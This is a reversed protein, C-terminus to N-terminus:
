DMRGFIMRGASTQLVSTVTLTVTEGIAGRGNEVVVMTGDELYGVGQGEEQGPKLVEVELTEGPLVAPKLANALDNINIVEIGRVRAVKNLNYDNTIVRGSRKEALTVLMQDVGEGTQTAVPMEDITIDVHPMTQLRNLIDLGRRGRNRKLRDASDAIAQLERLVFRPVLLPSDLFRTDAIDAIRGDIITSTDLLLPRGGKEQKAFEIYPIIFRFDDKTQLIFSIALYSAVIAVGIKVYGRVEEAIWPTIDIVPGLLATIILGVVLGFFVASILSIDKRKLLLDVGVVVLAGAMALLMARLWLGEGAEPDGEMAKLGLTLGVAAMALFFLLRLVILLM